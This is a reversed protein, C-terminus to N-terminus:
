EIGERNVWNHTAVRLSLVLYLYGHYYQLLVYLTRCKGAMHMCIELLFRIYSDNQLFCGNKM